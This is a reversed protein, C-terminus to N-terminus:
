MTTVARLDLDLKCLVLSPCKGDPEFNSPRAVLKMQEALFSRRESRLRM